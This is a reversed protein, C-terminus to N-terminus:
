QIQTECSIFTDFGGQGDCVDTGSNGNLTDNGDGGYITDNAAGGQLSDNGPGGMVVDNGGDGNMNDVGGAGVICDTGNQGRITQNAPGGLLVNASGNGTLGGNGITRTTNTIGNCENPKLDNFGPNNAQDLMRSTPVTNSATYAGMVLSTVILSMVVLVVLARRVVFSM